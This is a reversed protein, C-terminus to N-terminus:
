STGSARAAMALRNGTRKAPTMSAISPTSPALKEHKGDLSGTTQLASPSKYLEVLPAPHVFATFQSAAAAPTHMHKEM